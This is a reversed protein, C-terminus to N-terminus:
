LQGTAFNTFQVVLLTSQTPTPAAAVMITCSRRARAVRTQQLAGLALLRLLILRIAPGASTTLLHAQPAPRAELM